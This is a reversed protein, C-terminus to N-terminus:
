PRGARGEGRHIEGTTVALRVVGGSVGAVAAFPVHDEFLDAHAVVLCDDIAGVVRGIREGDVDEVVAGPPITWAGVRVGGRDPDAPPEM